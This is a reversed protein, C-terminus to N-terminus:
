DEVSITAQAGEAANQDQIKSNEVESPLTAGTSTSSATPTSTTASTTTPEKEAAAPTSVAAPTTKPAPTDESTAKSAAPLAVKEQPMPDLVPEATTPAKKLVEKADVEHAKTDTAASTLSEVVQDKPTEERDEDDGFLLADEEEETMKAEKVEEVPTHEPEEKTVTKPEEAEEKVAPLSTEIPTDKVDEKGDGSVTAEEEEEGEDEEAISSEAEIRKIEEESAISIESGRHELPAPEHKEPIFSHASGTSSHRHHSVSGTPSKIGESVTPSKIAPSSPLPVRSPTPPMDPMKPLPSPPVNEQFNISRLSLNSKKGMLRAKGASEQALQGMISNHQPEIGSQPDTLPSADSSFSSADVLAPRSPKGTLGM